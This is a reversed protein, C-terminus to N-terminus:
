IANVLHLYCSMSSSKPSGNSQSDKTFIEEDILDYGQYVQLSFVTDLSSNFTDSTRGTVNHLLCNLDNSVSSVEQGILLMCMDSSDRRQSIYLATHPGTPIVWQLNMIEGNDNIGLTNQQIAVEGIFLYSIEETWHQSLCYCYCYSVILIKIDPVSKFQILIDIIAM